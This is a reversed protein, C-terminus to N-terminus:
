APGGETTEVGTFEFIGDRSRSPTFIIDSTLDAGTESVEQTTIIDLQSM